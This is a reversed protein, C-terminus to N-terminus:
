SRTRVGGLDVEVLSDDDTDDTVVIIISKMFFWLANLCTPSGFFKLPRILLPNM